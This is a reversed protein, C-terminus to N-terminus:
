NSLKAVPSVNAFFQPHRRDDDSIGFGDLFDVLEHVEGGSDEDGLKCHLAQSLVPESVWPSLMM